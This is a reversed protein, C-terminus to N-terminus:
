ALRDAYTLRVFSIGHHVWKPYGVCCPRERLVWKGPQNEPSQAIGSTGHPIAEEANSSAREDTTGGKTSYGTKGTTLFMNSGGKKM